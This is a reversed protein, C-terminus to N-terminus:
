EPPTGSQQQEAAREMLRSGWFELNPWSVELQINDPDRLTISDEYDYSKVGSHEIGLEDLRRVWDQLEDRSEVHVAFHDLGPRREDFRVGEGDPHEVLGVVYSMSRLDFLSRYRIPSSTAPPCITENGIAVVGFVDEYWAVSRELDSVTLNIHNTGSLGM